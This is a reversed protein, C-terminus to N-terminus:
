IIANTVLRACENWASHELLNFIRAYLRDKDRPKLLNFPKIGLGPLVDSAVYRLDTKTQNYKPIIAIPRSTFYGLMVVFM